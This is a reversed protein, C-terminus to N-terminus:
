LRGMRITASRTHADLGEIAGFTEIVPMAEVLDEKTYEIISTRRRFDEVTLGSFKAAAGGTPLVHSPGAAFDGAPEPAWPGVFIAGAAKLHPLLSNPDETLVELHEPAFDSALDAAEEITPTVVILLGGNEVMPAMRDRRSCIELQKLVEADVAEALAMSDTTLLAKEKGTGHEIQSLLDAAVWAPNATDDAVVCIESPGAVQDLSVNGYVLRKAATVYAGGPGVIKQVPKVTETGYAILGVGQIGGVRYIETAGAIVLAYLLVPNVSGDKACPTVAVIEPVGAVQALTATMISTSALPATGGPIYVGVRDLPLFREGLKGGHPTDISWDPRMGAKAFASVRRHAEQVNRKVDEPVAKEAEALEEKSVLMTEPTLEVGDIRKVADLVAQNGRARIDALLEAAVKEATPDFAPRSLFEVVRYVPNKASSTVIRPNM